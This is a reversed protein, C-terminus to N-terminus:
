KPLAPIAKLYAAIAQRDSEPLKATNLVVEAMTGGASDYAPTLGNTLYGVIDIVEWELIGSDHPTINPIRGKGSPNPAGALWRTRDLGGLPTRETHCEGCHGPGEVLYQGRRVDEPADALAVMPTDDVYLLKWLGLGRRINFPFPLEHPANPNAVPPLGDMFSKLDAVDQWTMRSYSAYPFAPYYHQGDPSVGAKVAAAFMEVTWSGIGTAKDPSINPAIFRGFPTDFHKGGGLRLLDEGEAKDAAHCSACGSIHFILEGRAADGSMSALASQDPIRPATLLWGGAAAIVGVVAAILLLRKVM